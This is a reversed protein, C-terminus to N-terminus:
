VRLEALSQALEEDKMTVSGHWALQDEIFSVGKGKVTRALIFSPKGKQARANKLARRIQRVDHGDIEEVHWRFARVKELVPEYDMQTEVRADGQIGNADLLAVLTDVKHFGAAMFAEWTNGEQMDGDGLLVYTRFKKKLYRGGLAMGLGQSLGMGLSGSPADVGPIKVDPHGELFHDIKRLGLLEKKPFYGRMALAAYLAPCSHGKSLIFRDRNNWRPSRPRLNLEDFYLVALMDAVSLSGGPHGSRAAHIMCLAHSRIEQAKRALDTM